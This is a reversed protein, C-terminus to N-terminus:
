GESTEELKPGFFRYAYKQLRVYTEYSWKNWLFMQHAWQSLFMAVHAPQNYGPARFRRILRDLKV